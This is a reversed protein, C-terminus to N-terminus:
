LKQFNSLAILKESILGNQHKREIANFDTFLLCTQSSNQLFMTQIKTNQLM